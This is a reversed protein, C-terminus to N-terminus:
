DRVVEYGTNWVQVIRLGAYVRPDEGEPMDPVLTALAKEAGAKTRHSVIHGDEDREGPYWNYDQDSQKEIRFM